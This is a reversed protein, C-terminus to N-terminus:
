CLDRELSVRPWNKRQLCSLSHTHAFFSLNQSVILSVPDTLYVCSGVCVAALVATTTRVLGNRRKRSVCKPWKRM